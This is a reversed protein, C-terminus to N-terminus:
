PMSQARSQALVNDLLHYHHHHNVRPEAEMKEPDLTGISHEESYLQCIHKCSLKMIYM